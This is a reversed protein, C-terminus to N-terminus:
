RHRELFKIVPYEVYKVSIVSLVISVILVVLYRIILWIWEPSVLMPVGKSVWDFCDVLLIHFLYIPYSHKGIFALAPNNLVRFNGIFFALVLGFFFLGILYLEEIRYLYSKSFAQGYLLVLSSVLIVMALIRNNKVRLGNLFPKAFYLCIGMSLIPIEAWFSFQQFYRVFVDMELATYHRVIIRILFSGIFVSSLLLIISREFSNVFKSLLPVFLYFIVLASIYWEVGIISNNYNPFFGNTFTLHTLVNFFSIGQESGLWFSRGGMFFAPLLALFYLPCLRIIRHFLWTAWTKGESLYRRYSGFSLYSSLIFFPLIFYRGFGCLVGVKGPLDYLGCHPMIVVLILLGKLSDIWSERRKM